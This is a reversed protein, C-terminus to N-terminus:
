VFSQWPEWAATVWEGAAAAGEGGGYSQCRVVYGDHCRGCTPSGPSDPSPAPCPVGEPLEECHVACTVMAAVPAAVPAAM